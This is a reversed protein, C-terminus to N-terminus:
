GPDFFVQIPLLLYRYGINSRGVRYEGDLPWLGPIQQGADAVSIKCIRGKRKQSGLFDADTIRQHDGLAQSKDALQSPLQMDGTLENLTSKVCQQLGALFKAQTQGAVMGKLM